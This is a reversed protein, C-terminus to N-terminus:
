KNRVCCLDCDVGQVHATGMNLLSIIHNDYLSYYINLGDRRTQVIRCNRLEKLQHSTASQTLGTLESLEGVTAEGSGLHILIKLRPVSSLLRYIEALEEYNVDLIKQSSM